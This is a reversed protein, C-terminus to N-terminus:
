TAASRGKSWRRWGRCCCPKWSASTPRNCCRTAPVGQYLGGRQLLSVDGPVPFVRSAQWATDLPKLAAMADDRADLALHQRQWQRWSVCRSWASTTAPSVAPGCCASCRWPAWPVSTSPRQGWHIRRRERQDLGALDYEPFIVRSFLQLTFRSRGQVAGRGAPQPSATTATSRRRQPASTLYLRATPQRAPLPQWHLGHRRVPVAPRRHAGAPASTSSARPAPNREHHMRQTVQDGLRQLLGQFEKALLETDAGNQGKGFTIGFV